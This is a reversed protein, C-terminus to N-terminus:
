NITLTKKLPQIQIITNGDNVSIENGELDKYITQASNSSKTWTIKEAYGNTVYYGNGTGINDLTQRSSGPYDNLHSNKVNIIIINKFTLQKKTVRDIHTLGRETRKYNKNTSDYEYEVNHLWSYEIYLNNAVISNEKNSLDIEDISYNLLTEQTTTTKYKHATIRTDLKSISTFVNHWGGLPEERWFASGDSQTGSINNISYKGIADMAQPSYGFHTLIADNEMAYDIYYHRTSRIPGIMSTKADKFLALFRTSGGEIIIEYVIYAEQLGAQPFADKENDVMVAITRSDSDEDIIQLKKVVEEEKEEEIGENSVKKGEKNFFPTKIKGTYIGYSFISILGIILVILSIIIIKSKM